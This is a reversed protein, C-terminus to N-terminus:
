EGGSTEEAVEIGNAYMEAYAGTGECETHCRTNDYNCFTKCTICDEKNADTCITSQHDPNDGGCSSLLCCSILVLLLQKM